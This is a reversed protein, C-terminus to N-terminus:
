IKAALTWTEETIRSDGELNTTVRRVLSGLLGSVGRTSADISVRVTGRAGNPLPVTRTEERVGPMPHFLDEPWATRVSRQEFSGAFKRAQARDFPEIALARVDTGVILGAQRVEGSHVPAGQPLLMGSADLRMPFMDADPRSRELL